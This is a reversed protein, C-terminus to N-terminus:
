VHCCTDVPRVVECRPCFPVDIRKIIPQKVVKTDWQNVRPMEKEIPVCAGIIAAHHMHLWGKVPVVRSKCKRCVVGDATREYRRAFEQEIHREFDEKKLGQPIM